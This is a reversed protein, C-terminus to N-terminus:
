LGGIRFCNHKPLSGWLPLYSPVIESSGAFKLHYALTISVSIDKKKKIFMNKASLPWHEEAIEFDGTVRNWSFVM